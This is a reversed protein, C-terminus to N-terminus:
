AGRATMITAEVLVDLADVIPAASELPPLVSLETCAVLLYRTAQKKGPRPTKPGVELPTKDLCVVYAATILARIRRDAEGLAAATRKVM